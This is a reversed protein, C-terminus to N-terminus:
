ATKRTRATLASRIREMGDAYVYVHYKADNSAIWPGGVSRVIEGWQKTQQIIERYRFWQIWLEYTRMWSFLSVWSFDGTCYTYLLYLPYLLMDMWLTLSDMWTQPVFTEQLHVFEEAMAFHNVDPAPCELKQKRCKKRLASRKPLPM